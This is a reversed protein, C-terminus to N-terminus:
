MDDTNYIALENLFYITVFPQLQFSKTGLPKKLNELFTSFSIVGNNNHELAPQLLYAQM